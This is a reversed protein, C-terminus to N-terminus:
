SGPNCQAPRGQRWAAGAATPPRPPADLAAQRRAWGLPTPQLPMAQQRSSHLVHQGMLGAEGLLGMRGAYNPLKQLIQIQSGPDDVFFLGSAQVEEPLADLEPSDSAAGYRELFSPAAAALGNTFGSELDRVQHL